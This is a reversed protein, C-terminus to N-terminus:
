KESEVKENTGMMESRLEKSGDFNRIYMNILRKRTNENIERVQKELELHENLYKLQLERTIIPPNASLLSPNGMFARGIMIGVPTDQLKNELIKQMSCVAYQESIKGIDGNGIIPTKMLKVLKAGQKWNPSGTYGQKQTRFHISIFDLNLSDLFKWWKDDELKNIGTRTKISITLKENPTKLLGKKNRWFDILDKINDEIHIPEKNAVKISNIIQKVSSEDNILACGAGSKVIERDPCGVNLDIGDFGAYKAVHTIKSINM